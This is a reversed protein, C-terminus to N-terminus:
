FFLRKPSSRARGRPKFRRWNFPAKESNYLDDTFDAMISIRNSAVRMSPNHNECLMYSPAAGRRNDDRGRPRRRWDFHGRAAIDRRLPGAAARLRRHRASAMAMDVCIIVDASIVHPAHWGIALKYNYNLKHGLAFAPGSPCISQRGGVTKIPVQRM